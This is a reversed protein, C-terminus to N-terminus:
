LRAVFRTSLFKGVPPQLMGKNGECWGVPHIENSDPMRWIDNQTDCGDFRLRIRPGLSAIVTTICVSSDQRPDEAELKM